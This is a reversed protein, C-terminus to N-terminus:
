DKSSDPKKLNHLHKELDEPSKVRKVQFSIQPQFLIYLAVGIAATLIAAQWFEIMPGSCIEGVVANWCVWVFSIPLAIAVALLVLSVVTFFLFGWFGKIEFTKM